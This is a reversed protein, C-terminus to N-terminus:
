SNHCKDQGGNKSIQTVSREFVDISEEIEVDKCHTQNEKRGIICDWRKDHFPEDEDPLNIGRKNSGICIHHKNTCKHRTVDCPICYDYGCCCEEKQGTTEEELSRLYGNVPLPEMKDAGVVSDVEKGNKVFFFTPVSSINWAAAVDTAEDIDVKLFVVKPYKEALSTYIPSIHRCPGCWTATFYLIALRSTKSAASLKKELEGTSHIGSVQGDKLASLAEKV